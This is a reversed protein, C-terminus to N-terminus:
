WSWGLVNFLMDTVFLVNVREDTAFYLFHVWRPFWGANGAGYVPHLGLPTDEPAHGSVIWAEAWYRGTPGDPPCARAAGHSRGWTMAAIFHDRSLAPDRLTNVHECSARWMNGSYHPWCWDFKPNPGCHWKGTGKLKEVCEARGAIQIQGQLVRRTFQRRLSWFKHSGLSQLYTVHQTPHEACYKWLNHLTPFEYTLVSMASLEKFLPAPETYQFGGEALMGHVDNPLEGDATSYFANCLCQGDMARLMSRVASRTGKPYRGGVHLFTAGDPELCRTAVAHADCTLPARWAHLVHAVLTNCVFLAAIGVACMRARAWRARPKGTLLSGGGGGGGGGGSSPPDM